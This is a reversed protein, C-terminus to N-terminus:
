NEPEGEIGLAQEGRYLIWSQDVRYLQCDEEVEQVDEEVPSKQCSEFVGMLMVYLYGIVPQVALDNEEIEFHNDQNIEKGKKM